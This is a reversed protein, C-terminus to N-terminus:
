ATGVFYATTVKHPVLHGDAPGVWVTWGDPGRSVGSYDPGDSPPAWIATYPEGDCSYYGVWDPQEAPSPWAGGVRARCHTGDDLVVAMPRPDGTRPTLPARTGTAPILSLTRGFPDILCLVARGGDTPWCADASDASSGCSLVGGTVDYDSPYAADAIACAIPEDRRSGDETWGSQLRGQADVPKLM